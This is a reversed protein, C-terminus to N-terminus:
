KQNVGLLEVIKKGTNRKDCFVFDVGYKNKISYLIKFLRQGSVALPSVKLRPNVWKNVDELKKINGGHEVLFILKIGVDNARQIESIFRKHDQCVNTCLESLNQKRDVSIKSNELSIYDGVYNKSSIHKIGERDFYSLIKAIARAKERTDVQIIVVTVESRFTM